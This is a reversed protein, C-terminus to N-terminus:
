ASQRIASIPRCTMQLFRGSGTGPLRESVDIIYTEGQDREEESKKAQEVRKHSELGRTEIKSSEEGVLNMLEM